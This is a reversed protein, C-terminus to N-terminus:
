RKTLRYRTGTLGIGIVEKPLLMVMLLIDLHFDNRGDRGTDDDMVRWAQKNGRSLVRVRQHRSVQAITAGTRSRANRFQRGASQLAATLKAFIDYVTDVM